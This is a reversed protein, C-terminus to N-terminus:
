IKNEIYMPQSYILGLFYTHVGTTTMVTTPTTPKQTTPHVGQNVFHFGYNPKMLNYLSITELNPNGSQFLQSASPHKYFIRKWFEAGTVRAIPDYPNININFGPLFSKKWDDNRIPHNDLSSKDDTTAPYASNHVISGFFTGVLLVVLSLVRLKSSSKM